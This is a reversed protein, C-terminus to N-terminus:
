SEAEFSTQKGAIGLQDALVRPDLTRLRTLMERSPRLGGGAPAPQGTTQACVVHFRSLKRRTGPSAFRLARDFIDRLWNSRTPEDKLHVSIGAQWVPLGSHTQQFTITTLDFQRKESVFRYELGTDSPTDQPRLRLSRLEPGSVDLLELHAHLYNEAADLATAGDTVFPQQMHLLAHVISQTDRIIYAKSQEDFVLTRLPEM